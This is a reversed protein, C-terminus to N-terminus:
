RGLYQVRGYIRELMGLIQGKRKSMVQELNERDGMRRGGRNNSSSTAEKEAGRSTRCIM